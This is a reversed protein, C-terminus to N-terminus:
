NKRIFNIGILEDGYTFCCLFFLIKSCLSGCNFENLQFIGVQSNEFQIDDYFGSLLRTLFCDHRFTLVWIVVTWESQCSRIIIVVLLEVWFEQCITLQERRLTHGILDAKCVTTPQIQIGEFRAVTPKVKNIFRYHCKVSNVFSDTHHILILFQMIMAMCFTNTIEVSCNKIFKLLPFKHPSMLSQFVCSLSRCPLRYYNSRVQEAM